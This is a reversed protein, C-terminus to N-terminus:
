LVILLPRSWCVYLVVLTELKFIIPANGTLGKSHVAHTCAFLGGNSIGTDKKRAVTNAISRSVLDEEEQYITLLMSRQIPEQCLGVGGVSRELSPFFILFPFIRVTVDGGSLCIAPRGFLRLGEELCNLYYTHQCCGSIRSLLIHM